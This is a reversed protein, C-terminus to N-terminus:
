DNENKIKKKKNFHSQLGFVFQVLVFVIRSIIMELINSLLLHLLYFLFEELM